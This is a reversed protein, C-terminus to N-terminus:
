KWPPKRICVVVYIYMNMEFFYFIFFEINNKKFISISKVNQSHSLTPWQSETDIKKVKEGESVFYAVWILM